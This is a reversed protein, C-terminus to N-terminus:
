FYIRSKCLFFNKINENGKEAGLSLSKPSANPSINTSDEPEPELLSRMRRRTKKLEQEEKRKIHSSSGGGGGGPVVGVSGGVSGVVAGGLSGKNKDGLGGVGVGVGVGGGVVGGKGGGIERESSGRVLMSLGKEGGGEKGNERVSNNVVVMGSSDSNHNYSESSGGVSGRQSMSEGVGGVEREGEGESDGTDLSGGQSASKGGRGRGRSRNVRTAAHLIAFEFETPTM